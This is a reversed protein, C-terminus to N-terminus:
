KKKWEMVIITSTNSTNCYHFIYLCLYHASWGAKIHPNMEYHKKTKFSSSRSGQKLCTNIESSPHFLHSYM